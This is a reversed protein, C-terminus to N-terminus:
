HRRNVTYMRLFTIKVHFFFFASLVQLATSSTLTRFFAFVDRDIGYRITNPSEWQSLGIM